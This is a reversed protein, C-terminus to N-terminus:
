YMSKRYSGREGYESEEMAKGYGEKYGCEYLEVAMEELKDILSSKMGMRKGYRSGYKKEDDHMIEELIRM